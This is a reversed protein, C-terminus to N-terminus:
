PLYSFIPRILFVYRACVDRGSLAVPIVRSQIPTPSVFGISAVGRLLPRSLNLQAFVEVDQSSNTDATDFYKAAKEAEIKADEDESESIDGEDHDDEVESESNDIDDKTGNNINRKRDRDKLMDQQMDNVKDVDDVEDEDSSSEDESNECTSASSDDNEGDSESRSEEDSKGDEVENSTIQNSKKLNRRAAAIISAVNTRAPKLGKM